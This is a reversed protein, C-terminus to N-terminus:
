FQILSFIQQLALTGLHKFMKPNFMEKDSSKGSAKYGKISSKIEQMTIESNLDKLTQDEEGEQLNSSLIEECIQNTEQYFKEDFNAGELHDEEFFTSFM